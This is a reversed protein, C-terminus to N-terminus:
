IRALRSPSTRSKMAPAEAPRRGVPRRTAVTAQVEDRAHHLERSGAMCCSASDTHDTNMPQPARGRGAPQERICMLLERANGDSAHNPLAIIRRVSPGDRGHQHHDATQTRGEAAPRSLTLPASRPEYRSTPMLTPRLQHPIPGAPAMPAHCPQHRATTKEVAFSAPTSSYSKCAREDPAADVAGHALARRNMNPARSGIPGVTPLSSLTTASTIITPTSVYAM